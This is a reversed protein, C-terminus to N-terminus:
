RRALYEVPMRMLVSTSPENRLEVTVTRTWVRPEDLRHSLRVCEPSIHPWADFFCPDFGAAVLRDQKGASPNHIAADAGPDVTVVLVLSAAAGLAAVLLRNM